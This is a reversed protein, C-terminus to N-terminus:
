RSFLTTQIEGSVTRQSQMGLSVCFGPINLNVVLLHSFCSVFSSMFGKTLKEQIGRYQNLAM